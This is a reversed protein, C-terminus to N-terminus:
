EGCFNGGKGRRKLNIYKRVDEPLDLRGGHKSVYGEGAFYYETRNDSEYWVLLYDTTSSEKRSMKTLFGSGPMKLVDKPPMKGRFKKFHKFPQDLIKIIEESSLFANAPPINIRIFEAYAKIEIAKKTKNILLNMRKHLDQYQKKGFNLSTSYSTYEYRRYVRTLEEAIDLVEENATFYAFASKIDREVFLNYVELATLIVKLQELTLYLYAYIFDDRQECFVSFDGLNGRICPTDFDVTMDGEPNMFWSIEYRLRQQIDYANIAKIDTKDSWIGLSCSTYDGMGSLSPILLNRIKQFLVHRESLRDWRDETDYIGIDDIRDYQGIWIRSYLDLSTRMLCSEDATIELVFTEPPASIAKETNHNVSGIM